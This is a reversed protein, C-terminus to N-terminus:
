SLGDGVFRTNRSATSDARCMVAKGGHAVVADTAPNGLGPPVAELYGRQIKICVFSVPNRMRISTQQRFNIAQIGTIRLFFAIKKHERELTPWLCRVLEDVDTQGTRELSAPLRFSRLRTVCCHSRLRGNSSCVARCCRSTTMTPVCHDAFLHGRIVTGCVGAEHRRPFTLTSWFTCM